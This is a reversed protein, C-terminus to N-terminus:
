AHELILCTNHRTTDHGHRTQHGHRYGLKM